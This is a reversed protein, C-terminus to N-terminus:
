KISTGMTTSLKTLAIHYSPESFYANSKELCYKSIEKAHKPNNAVEQLITAAQDINADAWYLNNLSKFESHNSVVPIMKYDLLLSNEKNCFDTNGSWNTVLTPTGLLMSEAIALGFGESRHMSMFIDSEKILGLIDARDWLDDILQINPMNCIQKQIQIKEASNGGSNSKLILTANKNNKFAKKFSNIVGMPNKREFASGFSFISVALFNDKTIDLKKRMNKTPTGVTAPHQVTLVPKETYQKIATSTFNSPTFIANVYRLAKVWEAPIKELEWAWCAINFTKKYQKSGMNLIVPPMFPPNLHFIRISVEDATCMDNFDWELEIPKRFISEVSKCRVKYGSKRLQKACLRAAEGLGSASNFFGIVEISKCNKDFACNSVPVMNHLISARIFRYIHRIINKM